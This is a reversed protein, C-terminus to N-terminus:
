YVMNINLSYFQEIIELVRNLNVDFASVVAYFISDSYCIVNHCKCDSIVFSSMSWFCNLRIVNVIKLWLEDYSVLTLTELSVIWFPVRVVCGNQSAMIIMQVARKVKMDYEPWGSSYAATSINVSQFVNSVISDNM